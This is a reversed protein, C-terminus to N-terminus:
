RTKFSNLSNRRCSNKGQTALRSLVLSIAGSILRQEAFRTCEPLKNILREVMKDVTADLKKRPVVQNVLGVAIRRQPIEEGLFVIKRAQRDGVIFRLWQTAGSAPTSGRALGVHEIFIHDAAVFVHCSLQLENGEGVVM